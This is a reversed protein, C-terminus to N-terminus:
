EEDNWDVIIVKNEIDVSKVVENNIFPILKRYSNGIVVMVDNSGTEMFSDLIGYNINDKSNVDFGIIDAWYYSESSIEPM